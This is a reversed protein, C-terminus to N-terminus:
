APMGRNPPSGSQACHLGSMAVVVDAYGGWWRFALVFPAMESFEAENRGYKDLFSNAKARM